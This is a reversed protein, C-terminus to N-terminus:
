VRSTAKIHWSPMVEARFDVRSPRLPAFLANKFNSQIGEDYPNQSDAYRQRFNEYATQMVGSSFFHFGGFGVTTLVHLDNILALRFLSVQNIAILYVHFIALGALFWIDAFSFSVLALTEPRNMLMELLGSGNKM